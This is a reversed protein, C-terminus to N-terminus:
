SSLFNATQPIKRKQQKNQPAKPDFSTLSYVAKSIKPKPNPDDDININHPLRRRM